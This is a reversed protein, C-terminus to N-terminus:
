YSFLDINISCLEEEPSPGLVEEINEISKLLVEKIKGVDEKSLSVVGSYHLDKKDQKDLSKIAELRWNAHHKLIMSSDNQLHLRTTGIKYGGSEEIVLGKTLLFSLVDSVVQSNLKLKDMIAQKTQFGPISTLIHIAAFYWNGYYTNYDKESLTQDVQIRNKIKEREQLIEQLQEIYYERLDGTGSRDKQVLLMFFHGEEKTHSLFKSIKHCHELTFDHHGGLVQSIYGTQCNLFQALKSRLGRSSGTPSLVNNLYGKYNKYDFVSM